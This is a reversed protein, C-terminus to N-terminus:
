FYFGYKSWGINVVYPMVWFIFGLSIINFVSSLPIGNEILWAFNLILPYTLYILALGILLRVFRGMILPKELSGKEEYSTEISDHLM